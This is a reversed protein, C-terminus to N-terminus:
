VQQEKAGRDVATREPKVFVLDFVGDALPQRLSEMFKVEPRKCIDPFVRCLVSDRKVSQGDGLGM